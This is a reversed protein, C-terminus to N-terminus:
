VRLTDRVVENCQATTQRLFHNKKFLGSTRPLKSAQPLVKENIKKQVRWEERAAESGPATQKKILFSVKKPVLWKDGAAESGPAPSRRLFGVEKSRAVQGLCSRQRPCFKQWYISKKSSAVQGPCSRQRPCFKKWFISKNKFFGSTGPLKATQPLVKGSFRCNKQLLRKDPAAESGPASEKGSFINKFFGRTGPLKAAQPM